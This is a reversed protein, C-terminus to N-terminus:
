CAQVRPRGSKMPRATTRWDLLLKGESDRAMGEWKPGADNKKPFHPSTLPEGLIRGTETDVIYLAPDKDHAVLLRRGDGIPEVGSAEIVTNVKAGDLLPAPLTVSELRFDDARAMAPALEISGLFLASRILGTVRTKM